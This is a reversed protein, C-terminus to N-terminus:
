PISSPGTKPNEPYIQQGKFLFFKRTKALLTQHLGIEFEHCGESHPRTTTKVRGCLKREKLLKLSLLTESSNKNKRRKLLELKLYQNKMNYEMSPILDLNLGHFTSILKLFRKSPKMRFIRLSVLILSKKNLFESTLRALCLKQRESPAM